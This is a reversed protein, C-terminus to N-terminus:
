GTTWSESKPTGAPPEITPYSCQEQPRPRRADCYTPVLTGSPRRYEYDERVVPADAWLRLVDVPPTRLAASRGDFAISAASSQFELTARSLDGGGGLVGHGAARVKGTGHLQWDCRAGDRLTLQGDNM